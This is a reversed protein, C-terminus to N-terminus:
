EWKLVKKGYFMYSSMFAKITAGMYSSTRDASTYNLPSTKLAAHFFYTFLNTM